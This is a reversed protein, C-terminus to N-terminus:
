LTTFNYAYCHSHAPVPCHVLDRVYAVTQRSLSIVFEAKVLTFGHECTVLVFEYSFAVVVLVLRRCPILLFLTTLVWVGRRIRDYKRGRNLHLSSIYWSPLCQSSRQGIVSRPAYVVVDLHVHFRRRFRHSHPQDTTRAVSPGAVTLRHKRLRDARHRLQVPVWVAAAFWRRVSWTAAAQGHGSRVRAGASSVAARRSLGSCCGSMFM